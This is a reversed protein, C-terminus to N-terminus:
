SHWKPKAVVKKLLDDLFDEKIVEALISARVEDVERISIHAV